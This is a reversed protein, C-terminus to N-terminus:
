PCIADDLSSMQLADTFYTLNQSVRYCDEVNYRLTPKYTPVSMEASCVAKKM